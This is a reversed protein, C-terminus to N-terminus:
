YLINFGKYSKFELQQSLLQNVISMRPGKKLWDHLSEISSEDGCAIVEVDGNDLNKAYGTLGRKNGEHCTHYRFGVGQVVGSVIFKMCVKAM